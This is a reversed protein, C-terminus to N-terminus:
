HDKDTPDAILIYLVFVIGVALFAGEVLDLATM